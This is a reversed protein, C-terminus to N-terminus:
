IYMSTGVTYQIDTASNVDTASLKGKMVSCCLCASIIAKMLHISQLEATIKQNTYITYKLELSTKLLLM